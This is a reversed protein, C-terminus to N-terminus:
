KAYTLTIFRIGPTKMAPIEIFPIRGGLLELLDFADVSYFDNKVAFGIGSVNSRMVKLKLFLGNRREAELAESAKPMNQAPTESQSEAPSKSQNKKTSTKKNSTKKNSTKKKKPM